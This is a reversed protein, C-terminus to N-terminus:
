CAGSVLVVELHKGLPELLSENEGRVALLKILYFNGLLVFM